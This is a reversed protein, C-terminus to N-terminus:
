RFDTRLKWVTTGDVKEQDCISRLLARFKASHESPLKSGFEDLLEKTSAQGFKKCEFMIFERIRKLLDLSSPDSVFVDVNEDDNDDGGDGGASKSFVENRVRMKNLLDTSSVASSVTAGTKLNTQVSGALSGDFHQDQPAGTNDDEEKIQKSTSPRELATQLITNKKQGFRPRKAGHQGTWTPVGATAPLCHTRSKKLALSAERAVKDAESEVIVYDAQGPDMVKDHHLAGQIGTKKFLKKLVYNDMEDSEEKSKQPEAPPKYNRTKDLHPIREGEFKADRRKHKKKKHKDRKHEVDKDKFKKEMPEGKLRESRCSASDRDHKRKHSDEKNKESDRKNDIVRNPIDSVSSAAVNLAESSPKKKIKFHKLRDRDSLASTEQVNSGSSTKNGQSKDKSSGIHSSNDANKVNDSIKERSDSGSDSAAKPTKMFKALKDQEMKQSLKRAMERMRAIEDRDFNLEAKTNREVDDLNEEEEKEKELRKKEEKIKDFRNKSMVPKVTVDSGTGAFIATTETEGKDDSLGLSFLEYLDNTKFLRRQKPDKLVRNTLFQKFIQRHYIKEEITGTTLLRYITVQRKQGIRWARERAQMDTSPNWDPDYIIIRNAGVLNVGLGGVRTTLLFLYISEDTNYKQVLPQRSSIGTGGDMRVYTYRKEQVYKEMVDLMQKSQTFLLARHGQKKWLKLLADVVIMKGARKWYGYDLSSDTDNDGKFVRPGGTALDPHNCIKRLQILGSFVMLRGRLIEQCERSALYEEYVERQDKSLRCFLVQETKGPLNINMKVDAKMRRLLYPNITDRLVCACKYASQVQVDTANSYGGQVIPVAFHQLFDPLTGLKGPFVFDMLSWLERLNNQIPSGSLIIRHPTRFQKCVLTAKVDPNRIKHGEDLIIYHWDYPLIHEQQLVLTSYSTVLIGNNKVIHRILDREKGIYTGSGHLVAVRFPPWWTHFEKVWQHMVTAPCVIMSPGLGVYNFNRSRLRSYKLGALFAIAQITKGLGMEDGVIGGAQQCHLEWLWKVCTKQYKYLKSWIRGPVKMGGDFEEDDESDSMRGAERAKQKFLESKHFKEMREEFYEEHGDDRYKRIAKARPLREGADSDSDESHSRYIPRNHVKSWGKKKKNKREKELKASRVEQKVTEEEELDSDVLPEQDSPVWEEGDSLYGPESLEGEESLEHEKKIARKTVAQVAPRNGEEDNPEIKIQIDSSETPHQQNVVTGFPTMEGTKILKDKAENGSSGLVSKFAKENEDFLPAKGDLRAQIKKKKEELAKMETMKTEKQKQASVLRRNAGGTAFSKGQGLQALQTALSALEHKLSRIDDNVIKLDKKLSEKKRKEEEKTIADDVQKMVGEEFDEQNFVDIDLGKLDDTDDTLQASQILDMDVHFKSKSGTDADGVVDIDSNEVFNEM